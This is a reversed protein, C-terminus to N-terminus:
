KYLENCYVVLAIVNSMNKFDTNNINIFENLEKDKGPFIKLFQRKTEFVNMKGDKRIWYRSDDFVKYGTPINLNIPGRAGYIQRVSSPPNTQSKAGYLTPTGEFEVYSKHQIFLGIPAHVALEYFGKEVPVFTRNAMFITDVLQPEELILFLKKQMFVMQQDVTNYNLIATYIEGSKMKVMSKTFRPILLNPLNILSDTQAFLPFSVTILILASLVQITKIRTKEM